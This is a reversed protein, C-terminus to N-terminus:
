DLSVRIEVRRNRPESKMTPVIKQTDAYGKVEIIQSDSLKHKTKLAKEVSRARELSLWKNVRFPGTSDTHGGIRAKANPYRAMAAGVKEVLRAARNTLKSSGHAFSVDGDISIVLERTVKGDPGVKKEVSLGQERFGNAIEELKLNSNEFEERVTKYVRDLDNEAVEEDPEPEVVPEVKGGAAVAQEQYLTPFAVEEEYVPCGKIENLIVRQAPTTACAVFSTLPGAVLAVFVKRRSIRGITSRILTQM